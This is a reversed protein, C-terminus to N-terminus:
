KWASSTSCWVSLTTSSVGGPLLCVVNDFFMLVDEVMEVEVKDIETEEIIKRGGVKM